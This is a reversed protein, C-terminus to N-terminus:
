LDGLSNRFTQVFYQLFIDFVPYSESHLILNKPDNDERQLDGVGIENGVVINLLSFMFIWLFLFQIFSMSQKIVNVVLEVQRSMQIFVRFFYLLKQFMLCIEILCLIRLVFNMKFSHVLKDSTDEHGMEFVVILIYIILHILHGINYSSDFYDKWGNEKLEFIEIL